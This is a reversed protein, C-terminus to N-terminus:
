PSKAMQKKEIVSAGIAVITALKLPKSELTQTLALTRNFDISALAALTMVLDFGEVTKIEVSSGHGGRTEMNRVLRAQDSDYSPVKNATRVAEAAIDFSRDSDFSSYLYAIGLLARLRADTKPAAQARQAAEDLFTNARDKDKRVARVLELFLYTQQDITDVKRALQHPKPSEPLLLVNRWPM